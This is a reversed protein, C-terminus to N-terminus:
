EHPQRSILDALLGPHLWMALSLLKYAVIAMLDRWTAAMAETITM